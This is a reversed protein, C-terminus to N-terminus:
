SAFELSGGRRADIWVDAMAQRERWAAMFSTEDYACSDVNAISPDALFADTYDELLLMGPSYDNM